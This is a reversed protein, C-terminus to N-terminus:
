TLILNKLINEEFNSNTKLGNLFQTLISFLFLKFKPNNQNTKGYNNKYFSFKFIERSTYNEIKTERM